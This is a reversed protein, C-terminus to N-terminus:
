DNIYEYDYYLIGDVPTEDAKYYLYGNESYFKENEEDCTIFFRPIYGVYSQLREEGECIECTSQEDCSCTLYYGVEICVYMCAEDINEIFKSIHLTFDLYIVEDIENIFGLSVTGIYGVNEKNPLSDKDIEIGFPIPYGQGFFGGLRTIKYGNYEEPIIIENNNEVLSYQYGGVFADGRSASYGIELNNVYEDALEYGTCGTLPILMVTCILICLINKM